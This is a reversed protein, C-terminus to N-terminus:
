TNKIWFSVNRNWSMCRRKFLSRWSLSRFLYFLHMWKQRPKGWFICIPENCEPFIFQSETLSFFYDKIALMTKLYKFTIAGAQIFHKAKVLYKLSWPGSSVPFIESFFLHLVLCFNKPQFYSLFCLRVNSIESPAVSLHEESFFTKSLTAFHVPCCMSHTTAYRLLHTPHPCM